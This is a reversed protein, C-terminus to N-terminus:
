LNLPANNDCEWGKWVTDAEIWHLIIFGPVFTRATTVCYGYVKITGNVMVKVRVACSQKARPGPNAYVVKAILSHEKSYPYPKGWELIKLTNFGEIQQKMYAYVALEQKETLPCKNAVTQEIKADEQKSAEKFKELNSQGFAGTTSLLVSVVLVLTIKKM